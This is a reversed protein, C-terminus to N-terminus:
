TLYNLLSFKRPAPAFVKVAPVNTYLATSTSPNCSTSTTNLMHLTSTTSLKGLTARLLRAARPFTIYAIYQYDSNSASNYVLLHAARLYKM